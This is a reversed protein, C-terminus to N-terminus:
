SVDIQYEINISEGERPLHDSIIKSVTNKTLIGKRRLQLIHNNMSQTSMAPVMSNRIAKRVNRSRFLEEVEKKNRNASYLILIKELFERERPKLGLVPNLTKIFTKYFEDRKVKIPVIM